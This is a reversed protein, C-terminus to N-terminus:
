FVTMFGFKLERSIEAADPRNKTLNKFDVEIYYNSTVAWRIGANLYGDGKGFRGTGNDNFAFDYEALIEFGYILGRDIGVFINLDGDGDDNELSKNIGGHFGLNGMLWYNRSAILYFGKAKVAYRDFQESYGGWGQTSFGAAIAPFVNSENIVRLRIDIGVQPNWNVAGDGIINDGGFYLAANVRDMFGFAGGALVGGNSYLRYDISGSKHPLTGATPTDILELLQRNALKDAAHLSVSLIFPIIIM